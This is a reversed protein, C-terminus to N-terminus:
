RQRGRLAVTAEVLQRLRGDASRDIVSDLVNFRRAAPEAVPDEAALLLAFRVGLVRGPDTWFGAPVWREVNGDHDADEGYLVQFSEVGPVLGQRRIETTLEIDSPGYRCQLALNGTSNLDFVMERLYFRARGDPDRDPNRNDFCNRDSWERIGIRDGAPSVNDASDGTLMSTDSGPTWPEPRFGAQRIRRSLLGVAFRAHDQLQAQNDQLRHAASSAAVIQVLGLVLLATLALALLLEILSLGTQSRVIANEFCRCNCFTAGALRRAM